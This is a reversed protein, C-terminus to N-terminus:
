ILIELLLGLYIMKSDLLSLEALFRLENDDEQPGYVITLMFKFVGRSLIITVNFENVLSHLETFSDSWALLIGGKTGMADLKAFIKYKFPCVQRMKFISTESWKIEQFSIIDGNQKIVLIKLWLVNKYIVYVVCM